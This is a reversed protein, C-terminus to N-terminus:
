GRSVYVRSSDTFAAFQYFDAIKFTPSASSVKVLDKGVAQLDDGSLDAFAFTQFLLLVVMM